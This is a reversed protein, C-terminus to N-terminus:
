RADNGEQVYPLIGRIQLELEMIKMVQHFAVDAAPTDTLSVPWAIKFLENLRSLALVKFQENEIDWDVKAKDLAIKIDKRITEHSVYLEQAIARLTYGAVKMALAESRRRDLEAQTTRKPM